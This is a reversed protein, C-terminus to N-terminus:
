TADTSGDDVLVVEYGSIASQAPIRQNELAKLCKQLIPLRDYTPIVVSFFM